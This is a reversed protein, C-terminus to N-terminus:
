GMLSKRFSGFSGGIRKGGNDYLDIQPTQTPKGFQSMMEMLPENQTKILMQQKYTAHPDPRSAMERKHLDAKRKEEAQFADYQARQNAMNQGYQQRAMNDLEAQRANAAEISANEQATYQDHWKQMESGTDRGAMGGSWQMTKTDIPDYLGVTRQSSAGPYTISPYQYNGYSM